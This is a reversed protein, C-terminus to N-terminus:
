DTVRDGRAHDRFKAMKECIDEIAKAAESATTRRVTCIVARDPGHVVGEWVANNDCGRWRVEVCFPGIEARYVPIADQINLGTNFIKIM